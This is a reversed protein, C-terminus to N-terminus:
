FYLMSHHQPATTRCGERIISACAVVPPRKTFRRLAGSGRKLQEDVFARWGSLAGVSAERARTRAAARAESAWAWLTGVNLVAGPATLALTRVLQQWEAGEASRLLVNLNKRPERICTLIASWHAKGLASLPCGSNGGNQELHMLARLERLRIGLWQLALTIPDARGDERATPLTAHRWVM